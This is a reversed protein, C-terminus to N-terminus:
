SFIRSVFLKTFFNEGVSVVARFDLGEGVQSAYYFFREAERHSVGRTEWMCDGRRAPCEFIGEKGRGGDDATGGKFEM